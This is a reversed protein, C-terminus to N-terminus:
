APTPSIPAQLIWRKDGYNTNPKIVDPSSEEAASDLDLIYTYYNGSVCVFAMEDGGLVAGDIGDLSNSAGTTLAQKYYVIM